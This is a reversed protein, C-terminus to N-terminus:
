EKNRKIKEFEPCM